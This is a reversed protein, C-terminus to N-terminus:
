ENVREFYRKVTARHRPLIVPTHAGGGGAAAERLRGPETTATPEATPAGMSVGVKHSDKYSQLASPPLVQETFKVGEEATAEKWTLSADGRGRQLGGRGQGGGQTDSGTRAAQIGPDGSPRGSQRGGPCNSGSFMAAMEELKMDMGQQAMFEALAESDFQGMRQCLKLMEPDIMGNKCLQEVLKQLDIKHNELFKVLQELDKTDFQGNQIHKLTQMDLIQTLQQNEKLANQVMKHLEMMAQQMKQADLIEAVQQGDKEVEPNSATKDGAKGPKINGQQLQYLAESLAQIETLQETKALAKQAAKQAAQAIEQEVHDLAEWTKVPDSGRAERRLQDLKKVLVEAQAASLIEEEQLTEIQSTLDEVERDIELRDGRVMEVYRQPALFSIGLFVAAMLFIGWTKGSRWRLRPAEGAKAKGVWAGTDVEAAAMILGGGGGERDLLARVTPADPVNHRSIYWAGGLAPIFGALGWLLYIREVGGAARLLVVAAGWIFCWVTLLGLSNRLFLVARARYRFTRISKAVKDM